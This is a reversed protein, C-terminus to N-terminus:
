SKFFCFGYKNHLIVSLGLTSELVCLLNCHPIFNPKYKSFLNFYSLFPVNLSDIYDTVKQKVETYPYNSDLNTLTPILVFCYDM